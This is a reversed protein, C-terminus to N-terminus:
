QPREMSSCPPSRADLNWKQPAMPIGLGTSIPIGSQYRWCHNNEVVTPPCLERTGCHDNEDLELRSSRVVPDQWIFLTKRQPHRNQPKVPFGLQRRGYVIGFIGVDARVELVPSVILVREGLPKSEHEPIRLGRRPGAM